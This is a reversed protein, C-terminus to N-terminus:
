PTLEFVVPQILESAIPKGFQRAPSYDAKKAAKIAADDLGQFGSSSLLTIRGPRGSKLVEISLVVTGQHGRRQSSRPYTARIGHIPAAESIVGKDTVMSAVQEMSKQPAPEPTPEAKPQIVPEPEPTPAPTPIPEPVPEPKPEVTPETREETVPEPKPEAPKAAITPILTLQVVTRGAELQPEAPTYM